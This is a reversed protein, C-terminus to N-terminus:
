RRSLIEKIKEQGASQQKIKFDWNYTDMYDVGPQPIAFEPVWQAYSLDKRTGPMLEARSYVELGERSAIWNAFLRAANPHPAGEVLALVGFAGSTWGPADPLSRIVQIPFGEKLLKDLETVNFGLAIPHTGRALWDAWQRYDRAVVTQEGFLRGIYDEGLLLYLYTAMNGGTGRVTPDDSAIKGKFEPRLLDQASRIHSPDVFDRNVALMPTASNFLRLMKTGDPDVFAPDLTWVSPDTVEPLVLHPKVDALLGAPYLVDAFTGFGSVLADMTVLGAQKESVM